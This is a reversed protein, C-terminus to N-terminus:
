LSEPCGPADLPTESPSISLYDALGHEGYSDRFAKVIEDIAKELDIETTTM